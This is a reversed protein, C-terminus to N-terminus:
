KCGSVEVTKPSRSRISDRVAKMEAPTTTTIRREQGAVRLVLTGRFGFAYCVSEIGNWASLLEEHCGKTRLGDTTLELEAITCRGGRKREISIDFRKRRLPDPPQQSAARQIKPSPKAQREIMARIVVDPVRASALAVLADTDTRFDVRSTQIKAVITEASLGAATMKVIDDNVLPAEKADLAPALLLASLLLLTTM